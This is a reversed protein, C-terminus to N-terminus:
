EEAAPKKEQSFYKELVDEELQPQLFFPGETPEHV